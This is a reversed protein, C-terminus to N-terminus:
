QQEPLLCQPPQLSIPTPPSPTRGPSGRDRPLSSPQCKLCLEQLAELPSREYAVGEVPKSDPPVGLSGPILWVRARSSRGGGLVGALPSFGDAVGRNSASKCADRARRGRRHLMCVDPDLAVGEVGPLPINAVSPELPFRPCGAQRLTHEVLGHVHGVPGSGVELADTLLRGRVTGSDGEGRGHLSCFQLTRLQPLPRSIRTLTQPGTFWHAELCWRQSPPYMPVPTVCLELNLDQSQWRGEM